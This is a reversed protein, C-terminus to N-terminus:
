EEYSIMKKIQKIYLNRASAKEQLINYGMGKFGEKLKTEAELSRLLDEMLSSLQVLESHYVEDTGCEVDRCYTCELMNWHNHKM